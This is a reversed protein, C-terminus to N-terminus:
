TAACTESLRILWAPEQGRELAVPPGDLCGLVGPALLDAPYRGRGDVVVIWPAEFRRSLEMVSALDEDPLVIADRDLADAIWMPHDAILTAPVSRGGRDAVSGIAGALAAYRAQRERSQDAVLSLQLGGLVTAIVILTVPGIVVNVQRWDRMRSIRALLADGGLVAM